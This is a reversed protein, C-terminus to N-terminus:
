EYDIEEILVIPEGYEQEFTGVVTQWNNENIEQDSVFRYQDGDEFEVTGRYRDSKHVRRSDVVCLREAFARKPEM